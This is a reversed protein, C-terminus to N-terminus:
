LKCMSHLTSQLLDSQSWMSRLRNQLLAIPFSESHETAAAREWIQTSQARAVHRFVPEMANLHLFLRLTSAAICCKNFKATLVPAVVNLLFALEVAVKRMRAQLVIDVPRSCCKAHHHPCAPGRAPQLQIPFWRYIYQAHVGVVVDVIAKRGSPFIHFQISM